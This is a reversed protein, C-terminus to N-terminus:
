RLFLPTAHSLFHYLDNKNAEHKEYTDFDNLKKDKSMKTLMTQGLVSQLIHVSILIKYRTELSSIM